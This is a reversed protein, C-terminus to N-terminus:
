QKAGLFLRVLNPVDADDRDGAGHGVREVRMAPQPGFTQCLGVVIAAGTPTVTECRRDVGHTPVDRLLLATAPAPLPMRGHQCDVFGHGLPLSGCSLTEVDLMELAVAAGLMDVISDIAGVEHFHVKAVPMDHVAAEAEALKMVITKARQKARDTTSLQDVMALIDGPSVHHHHHTHGHGRDQDHDHDHHHHSTQAARDIVHLNTARIQHRMASEVDLSFKEAVTTPAFAQVIADIEVGLDILAGLFMDGAIGAFPDIHLHAPM